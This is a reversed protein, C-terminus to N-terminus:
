KDRPRGRGHSLGFIGEGAFFSINLVLRSDSLALSLDVVIKMFCFFAVPSSAQLM